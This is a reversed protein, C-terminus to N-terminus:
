LKGERLLKRFNKMNGYKKRYFDYICKNALRKVAIMYGEKKAVNLFTEKDYIDKKLNKNIKMREKKQEQKIGNQKFYRTDVYKFLKEIFKEKFEKSSKSEAIMKDMIKKSLLRSRLWDRVFGQFSKKASFKDLKRLPIQQEYIALIFGEFDSIELRKKLYTKVAIEKLEKIDKEMVDQITLGYKKLREKISRTLAYQRLKKLGSDKSPASKLTKIIIELTLKKMKRGPGERYISLINQQLKEKRKREMDSKRTFISKYYDEGLNHKIWLNSYGKELFKKVFYKKSLKCYTGKFISILDINNRIVGYRKAKFIFYHEVKLIKAVQRSSYGKKKKVGIGIKADLTAIIDYIKQKEEKTM